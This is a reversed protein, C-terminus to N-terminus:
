RRMCGGSFGPTRWARAPVQHKPSVRALFRPLKGDRAMGFLLRATAPGSQTEEALTSIADSGLFSLLALSLAGFVLSPL